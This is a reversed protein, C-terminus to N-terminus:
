AGDSEERLEAITREYNEQLPELVEAPMKIEIRIPRAKRWWRELADAIAAKAAKDKGTGNEKAQTIVATATAAYEEPTPKKAPAGGSGSAYAPAEVKAATTSRAPDKARGQGEKATQAADDSKVGQNSTSGGGNGGPGATSATAPPDALPNKVGPRESAQDTTARGVVVEPNEGDKIATMMGVLQPMHEIKIDTEDKVNLAAFLQEPKIGVRGFAEIIAARRQALTTADGMVVKVVRQYGIAWISKPVIALIANRRAIASAANVTMNIMDANYMRPRQNGRGSTMISRRIPIIESNNTQVDLCAAEVIVAARDPHDDDIRVFRTAVRINGYSARVIEAFRISAGVIDNDGRKLSYMCESAIEENLTARGLIENAIETDRRRPFRRATAVQQNIEAAVIPNVEMVSTETGVVEGTENDIVTGSDKNSM